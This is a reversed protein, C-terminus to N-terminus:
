YDEIGEDQQEVKEQEISITRWLLVGVEGWTFFIFNKEEHTVYSGLGRGVVCHWTPQYMMDFETKIIEAIDDLIRKQEFAHKACDVAHQQMRGSMDANKIVALTTDAQPVKRLTYANTGEENLYNADQPAKSM